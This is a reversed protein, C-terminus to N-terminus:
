STTVTRARHARADVAAVIADIDQDSGATGQMVQRLLATVPRIYQIGLLEQEHFQIQSRAGQTVYAQSLFMLPMVVVLCIVLSKQPHRLWGMVHRGATLFRQMTTLGVTAGAGCASRDGLRDDVTFRNVKLAQTLLKRGDPHRQTVM